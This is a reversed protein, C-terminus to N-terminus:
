YHISAPCMTNFPRLKVTGHLLVFTLLPTRKNQLNEITDEAAVVVMDVVVEEMDEEAVEM